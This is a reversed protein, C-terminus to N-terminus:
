PPIAATREHRPHPPACQALAECVAGRLPSCSGHSRPSAGTSSRASPSSRTPRSSRSRAALARTQFYLGWDAVVPLSRAEALRTGPLLTAFQVAAVAGYRAFLDYAFDLTARVEAETEGPMGVIYHVM